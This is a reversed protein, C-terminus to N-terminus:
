LKELIWQKPESPKRFKVVDICKYGFEKTYIEAEDLSIVIVKDGSNKKANINRCKVRAVKQRDAIADRIDVSTNFARKTGMISRLEEESLNYSKLFDSLFMNGVFPPQEKGDQLTEVQPDEGEEIEQMKVNDEELSESFMKDYDFRLMKHKTRLHLNLNTYLKDNKCIKCYEKQGQM